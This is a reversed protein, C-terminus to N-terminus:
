GPQSRGPYDSSDCCHLYSMIKFLEKRSMVSRPFPISMVSDVSWYHRLFDKKVIGFQFTLAILLTMKDERIGNEPWKKLNSHEKLSDKNRQLYQFAYKDAELTVSGVLEDAFFIKFFFLENPDDPIIFDFGQEVSFKPLPQFKTDRKKWLKMDWEDPFDTAQKKRNRPLQNVIIEEDDSTTLDDDTSGEDDESSFGEFEIDSEAGDSFLDNYAEEM